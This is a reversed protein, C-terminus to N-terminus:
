DAETPACCHYLWVWAANATAYPTDDGVIGIRQVYAGETKPAVNTARGPTESLYVIDGPAPAPDLAEDFLVYGYGNIRAIGTAHYDTGETMVGVWPYAGTVASADARVAQRRGSTLSIVEGRVLATTEATDNRVRMHEVTTQLRRILGYFAKHFAWLGTFVRPFKVM